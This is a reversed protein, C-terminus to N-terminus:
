ALYLIHPELFYPPLSLHFSVLMRSGYVWYKVRLVNAEERGVGLERQIYAIMKEDMRSFVGNDAAYLTNDLDIVLLKLDLNSLM